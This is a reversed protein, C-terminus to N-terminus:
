ALAKTPFLYLASAAPDTRLTQLVPLNYCLTKGSATGTVVIVNEGRLAAEVAQTQHTYLPWTKQRRLLDILEDDLGAPPDAYRAPRPPLKRWAVIDRMFTRDRRLAQLVIEITQDPGTSTKSPM